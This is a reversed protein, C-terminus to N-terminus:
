APARDAAVLEAAVMTAWWVGQRRASPSSEPLSNPLIVHQPDASSAGAIPRTCKSIRLRFRRTAAITMIVLGVSLWSTKGEGM